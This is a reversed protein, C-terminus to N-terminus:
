YFVKAQKLTLQQKVQFKSVLPREICILLMDNFQLVRCCYERHLLIREIYIITLVFFFDGKLVNEDFEIWEALHWCEVAASSHSVINQCKQPPFPLKKLM